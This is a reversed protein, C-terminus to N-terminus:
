AILREAEVPIRAYVTTGRGISTEIELTGGLLALRERMGALGLGGERNGPRQAM